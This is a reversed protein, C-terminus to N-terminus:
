QIGSCGIVATIPQGIEGLFLHEVYGTRAQRYLVASNPM